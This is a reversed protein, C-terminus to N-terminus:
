VRFRYADQPGTKENESARNAGLIFYIVVLAIIYAFSQASNKLSSLQNRDKQTYTIEPIISLHSIQVFPWGVQSLGTVLGMYVVKWWSSWVDCM